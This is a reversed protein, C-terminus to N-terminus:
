NFDIKAFCISNRFLCPIIMQHASVQKGYKAMFEFGKDLNKLTPNRNIDGGPAVTYDNLLNARKEEMNFLFHLLGGTNMLQYSILEDTNDDYQGKSIVNNWQLQGEKDFSLIVINDAHYRVNQSSGYYRSRYGMSNYYPSYSYYDFPNYFPSGYLYDWRNWSNYRSSTYFAESGIIFGGDRKTIINRIFYDNFAMKINADGRAEKRLEDGFVVTREMDVSAAEKNWILFYFGDVNGRREKYYFSTLFYRKNFNDVKIHLEDLYRKEIDLDKVLFSDAQAQKIVMSARSVIDSNQRYFKTFVMDGENDVYFEDLYENRDEMPMVMVTRKQIRLSDDFLNTTILYREKNKSNIKFVMIKSRDESSIASYIKDNASFGVHTTDLEILESIKKGNGDIKVAVCHVVNKKQYQYIAYCFENYPFFDVNIFHDNPIYTQEVKAIAKMSNDFVTIWNKNRINKYVLFNGGIKGVVEFDMRRSDDKDPESYVIKQGIASSIILVGVLLFLLGKRFM